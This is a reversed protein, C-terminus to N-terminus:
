PRTELHIKKPVVLICVRHGIHDGRGIASTIRRSKAVAVLWTTIRTTCKKQFFVARCRFTNTSSIPAYVNKASFHCFCSSKSLYYSLLVYLAFGPCAKGFCSADGTAGKAICGNRLMNDCKSIKLFSYRRLWRAWEMKIRHKFNQNQKM